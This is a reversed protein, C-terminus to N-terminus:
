RPSERKLESANRRTWTPSRRPRTRGPRPKRRLCTTCGERWSGRGCCRCRASSSTRSSCARPSTGPTSRRSTVRPSSRSATRGYRSTSGPFRKSVDPYYKGADVLVLPVSSIEAVGMFYVAYYHMYPMTLAWYCLLAALAHHALMEPARLTKNFFSVGFDWAEFALHAQLVRVAGPSTAYLRAKATTFAGLGTTWTTYGEYACYALPFLCSLEFALLFAGRARMTRPFMTRLIPHLVMFLATMGFLISPVVGDGWVLDYPTPAAPKKGWVGM